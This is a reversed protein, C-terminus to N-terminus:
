HYTNRQPSTGYYLRRKITPGNKDYKDNFTVPTTNDDLTYPKLIDAKYKECDLDELNKSDSHFVARIEYVDKSLLRILNNGLFGNAGTVICISTM